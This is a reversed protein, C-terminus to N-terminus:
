QDDVSGVSYDLSENVDICNAIIGSSVATLHAGYEREVAHAIVFFEFVPDQRLAALTLWLRRPRAASDGRM